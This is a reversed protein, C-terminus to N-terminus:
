INGLLNTQWKIDSKILYFFFQLVKTIQKNFIITSNDLVAINNYNGSINRHMMQIFKNVVLNIISNKSKNMNRFKEKSLLITLYNSKKLHRFNFTEFIIPLLM